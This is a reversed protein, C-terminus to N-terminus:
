KFLRDLDKAYYNYDKNCFHCKVSIKGEEKILQLADQKGISIVAKDIAALSCKCGYRAHRGELLELGCDGLKETLYQKPTKGYIAASIDTFRDTLAETKQIVNESCGPMLSILIGGASKCSRDTDVLVGLSVLSPLQESILFYYAFDEALEGSILEVKGTYTRKLGLDKIVTLTGNIGVAGSVDLKGSPKLPIDVYPNDVYGRLHLLGGDCSTVVAGCPGDGKVTVTLSDQENKLMSAMIATMSLTRGLVASCVPSLNHTKIASRVIDTSNICTVQVQRDFILAKSINTDM